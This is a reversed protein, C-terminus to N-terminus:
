ACLDPQTNLECHSTSLAPGSPEITATFWLVNADGDFGRQVLNGLVRVYDGLNIMFEERPSRDESAARGIQSGVFAGFLTAIVVILIAILIALICFLLTACGIAAATLAAFVVAPLGAAIGGVIAGGGAACIQPDKVYCRLIESTRPPPDPTCFVFAEDQEINEWSSSQTVVDVRDHMMTFPFFTEAASHPGSEEIHLVAGSACMSLGKVDACRDIVTGVIIAMIVVWAIFGAIAGALYGAAAAEPTPAPPGFVAGPGFFGALGGVISFGILAGFLLALLVDSTAGFSTGGVLGAHFPGCRAPTPSCMMTM